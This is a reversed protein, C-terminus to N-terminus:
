KMLEDLLLACECAAAGPWELRITRANRRMEIRIADGTPNPPLSVPMFEDSGGIAASPATTRIAIPTGSREAEEGLRAAHERERRAGVRGVRRITPM